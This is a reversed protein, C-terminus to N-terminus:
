FYYKNMIKIMMVDNYDNNGKNDYEYCNDDNDNNNKDDMKKKLNFCVDVIYFCKFKKKKVELWLWYM